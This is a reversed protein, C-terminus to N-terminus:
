TSLLHFHQRHRHNSAAQSVFHPRCPPFVCLKKKELSNQAFVLISVRAGPCHDHDGLLYISAPGHYATNGTAVTATTPPLHHYTSNPRSLSPPPPPCFSPSPQHLQSCFSSPPPPPHDDPPSSILARPPHAPPSLLVCEKLPKQSIGPKTIYRQEPGPNSRPTSRSEIQTHSTQGPRSRGLYIQVPRQERLGM